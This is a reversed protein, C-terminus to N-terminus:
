LCIKMINLNMLYIKTRRRCERLGELGIMIAHKLIKFELYLSDLTRPIKNELNNEKCTIQACKNFIIKQLDGKIHKNKLKFYIDLVVLYETRDWSLKKNTNNKIFIQNDM